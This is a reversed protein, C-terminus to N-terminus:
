HQAKRGGDHDPIMVLKCTGKVLDGRPTKMEVATGPAKGKCVELAEPPPGRRQEGNGPGGEGPRQNPPAAMAAASSVILTLILTTRM